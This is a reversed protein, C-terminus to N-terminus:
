DCYDAEVIQEMLAEIEPDDKWPPPPKINM